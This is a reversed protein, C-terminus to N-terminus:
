SLPVGIVMATGVKPYLDREVVVPRDSEVILPVSLRQLHDGFRFARRQGPGIEVDQLQDVALPQGSALVTFDVHAPADGPNMVVVWEDVTKDAQGAAFGWRRADIQSGLTIALGSRSAPASSDIRREAVVGIGNVSRILAAHPVGKPIRSEQNSTVTVRGEPPVTLEIPEAEGKELLLDVEVRAEKEGPNFVLYRETLGPVVYGEPFSWSTGRSPSGLAFSLGKRGPVSGDFLQLRAAVFRGVRAHVVTSVQERRRVVDNLAIVRTSHPAVDLGTVAEPASHGDETAFSLDVVADAPYPNYIEITEIADRTTAGEAFYWSDSAGTTCPITSRGYPGIADWEVVAEGGDLDVTASIYSSPPPKLAVRGRPGVNVAVSSETGDAPDYTVTGTLAASGTNVILLRADNIFPKLSLGGVCYYSASLASPPAAVPQAGRDLRGAAVSASAPRSRHVRRDVVAGAVVLAALVVVTVVRRTM